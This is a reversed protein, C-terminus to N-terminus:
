DGARLEKALLRVHETAGHEVDAEDYYRYTGVWRRGTDLYGLRIYLAAARPNDEDVGITVRALGRDRVLGEAYRILATGIGQGQLPGTVHLNTIEPDRVHPHWRLVGTGVPVLGRWAALYVVDGSAQRALFAAHVDNRGTPIEQNLVVLDAVVCPRVEVPARGAAPTDPSPATRREASM